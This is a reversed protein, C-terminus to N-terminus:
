SLFDKKLFNVTWLHRFRAQGVCYESLCVVESSLLLTHSNTWMKRVLCGDGPHLIRTFPSSSEFTTTPTSIFLEKRQEQRM